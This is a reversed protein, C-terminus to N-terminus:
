RIYEIRDEWEAADSALHALVLFDVLTRIRSGRRVLFLGPSHHGIRLHQALHSPLTSKDFSVLIRGEREAWLLVAPDPSGLPLDPPDGVRAVDLLHIGRANHQELALWLLGRQNEDFLYRLAV